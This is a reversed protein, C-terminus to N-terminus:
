NTRAAVTDCLAYVARRAPLSPLAGVAARAEDLWRHLSQEARRAATGGTRALLAPRRAPGVSGRTGPARGRVARRMRTGTRRGDAAGLDDAIHLAIGLHEGCRVLSRVYPQPAAAQLAGLGLAMGFLAATGGATAEVYHTHADEGPAPGTLTRLQAAALRGATRANLRLADPGLGAALQASRAPLWDVAATPGAGRAPTASMLLSLHVLETVVAARTVGERWPEGFEAGLLTLLVPLRGGDRRALRDAREVADGDPMGALCDRLCKEAADMAERMRSEFEPARLDLQGLLGTQDYVFDARTQVLNM